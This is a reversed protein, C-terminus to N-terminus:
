KGPQGERSEPCGRGSVLGGARDDRDLCLSPVMMDFHNPVATMAAVPMQRSALDTGACTVSGVFSSCFHSDVTPLVITFNTPLLDFHMEFHKVVARFVEPGYVPQLSGAYVSGVVLAQM